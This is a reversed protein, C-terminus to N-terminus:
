QTLYALQGNKVSLSLQGSLVAILKKGAVENRWGKNLTSSGTMVLQTIDGRSGLMATAVDAQKGCDKLVCMLLDVLSEQDATPLDPKQPLVVDLSPAEAFCQQWSQFYRGVEREGLGQIRLASDQDKPRRRALDLLVEDKLIWRRPRNKKLAENERWRALAAVNKVEKPKLRKAGKVRMWATEPNPQYKKADALADFDPELWARRGQAELASELVPYMQALWRVDDVAYQQEETSLPRRSWDTRSHTKALEVGTIRQVLPAYGIQEGHGLLAAAIQTDFLPAPTDGLFQLLVEMDQSAAHLVKVVDANLLLKQLVVKAGAVQVDVLWHSHGDSIQVLCLEPFYTKERLFETDVALWRSGVLAQHM